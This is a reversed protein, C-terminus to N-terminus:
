EDGKVDYNYVSLQKKNIHISLISSEKFCDNQQPFWNLCEKLCNNIVDGNYKIM